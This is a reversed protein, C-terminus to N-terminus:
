SDREDATEAIHNAIWAKEQGIDPNRPFRDDRFIGATPDTIDERRKLIIDHDRKILILTGGNDMGLEHRIDAPLTMQGRNRVNIERMM